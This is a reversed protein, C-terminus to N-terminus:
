RQLRAPCRCGGGASRHCLGRVAGAMAHQDRIGPFEPLKPEIRCECPNIIAPPIAFGRALFKSLAEGVARDGTCRRAAVRTGSTRSEDAQDTTECTTRAYPGRLLQRVRSATLWRSSAMQLSHERGYGQPRGCPVIPPPAHVTRRLLVAGPLRRPPFAVDRAPLRGAQVDQHAHSYEGCEPVVRRILASTRLMGARTPRAVTSM